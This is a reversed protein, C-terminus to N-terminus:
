LTGVYICNNLYKLQFYNILVVLFGIRQHTLLGQLNSLFVHLAKQSVCYSTLSQAYFYIYM